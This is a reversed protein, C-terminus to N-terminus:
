DFCSRTAFHEHEYEYEYETLFASHLICLVSYLSWYCLLVNYRLLPFFFLIKKKECRSAASCRTEILTFNSDAFQTDDHVTRHPATCQM